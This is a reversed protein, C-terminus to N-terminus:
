KPDGRKVPRGAQKQGLTLSKKASPKKPHGPIILSAALSRREAARKAAAARRTAALQTAAILAEGHVSGREVDPRWDAPLQREVEVLLEAGTTGLAKAIRLLVSITPQKEGRELEGYFKRDVQALFPFVDQAIGAAQRHRRLTDGVATAVHPDFSSASSEPIPSPLTPPNM